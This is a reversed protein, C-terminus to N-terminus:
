LLQGGCSVNATGWKRSKMDRNAITFGNERLWATSKAIAEPLTAAGVTHNAFTYPAYYKTVLKKAMISVKRSQFYITLSPM